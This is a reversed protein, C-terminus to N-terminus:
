TPSTIRDEVGLAAGFGQVFATKGAGLDGALVLVDGPRALAALASALRRTEDPSSTAARLTMGRSGHRATPGDVGAEGARLRRAGPRAAHRRRAARGRPAPHPRPGPGPVRLDPGAPAHDRHGDRPAAEVRLQRAHRDGDPRRPRD